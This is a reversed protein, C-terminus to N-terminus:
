AIVVPVDRDMTPTSSSGSGRRSAAAGGRGSRPARLATPREDGSRVLQRPSRCRGPESVLGNADDRVVVTVTHAGPAVGTLTLEGGGAGQGAGDVSWDYVLVADAAQARPEASCVVLGPDEFNHSCQLSVGLTTPPPLSSSGALVFSASMRADTKLGVELPDDYRYAYQGSLRTGDGSVEGEFTLSEVPDNVHTARLSLHRGRVNRGAGTPITKKVRCTPDARVSSGAFRRPVGMWGRGNSRARRLAFSSPM